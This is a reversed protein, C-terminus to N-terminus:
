RRSRRSAAVLDAQEEYAKVFAKGFLEHFDERASDSIRGHHELYLEWLRARRSMPLMADLMGGRTLQAELRAPEFRALMGHIAARTGAMTGVVHGLLDTMADQMAEPAAMFGRMPPQLLQALAASADPAFKLPNNDKSKITTVQAHLEQKTTTRVANLQVTGEVAHRLTSGVLHMLEPTLRQRSAPTLHAGECFADWLADAFTTNAAASQARPPAEVPEPPPKDDLPINQAAGRVPPPQYAGRLAPTDDAAAPGLPASDAQAPPDFFALPDTSSHAAAQVGSGLFAHLPDTSGPAMAQLGFLADLNGPSSERSGVLDALSPEKATASASRQPEPPALEAFPDFDDPLRAAPSAPSPPRLPSGQARQAVPAVPAGLLDAFPDVAGVPASAGFLDAFPDVATAAARLAQRPPDTRGEAVSAGIVTKTDVPRSGSGGHAGLQADDSLTVRLEYNGVNMCDGHRLKAAEGPVIPKGNVVISNSSGVNRISFVGAVCVVEAQLRSVHREPDPLALTNSDSRGITGGREGFEAVIAQPLRESTLSNARIVLRM